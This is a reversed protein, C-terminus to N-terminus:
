KQVRDLRRQARVKLMEIFHEARAFEELESKEDPSLKGSDQAELLYTVRAATKESLSFDIIEELTPGSTIFDLLEDFANFRESTM